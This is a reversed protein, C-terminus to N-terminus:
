LALSGGVMSIGGGPNSTVTSQTITLTGGNASIGIGQNGDVTVRTLALKPAGGSPISIALNGMGTGNTIELDFVRVDAGDNQVQLIVGPVTRTLKAGPDALITVVKGDITTGKDDSVTGSEIKVYPRNMKVGADLTGCPLELTCM